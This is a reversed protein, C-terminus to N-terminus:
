LTSVPFISLTQTYVRVVNQDLFSLNFSKYELLPPHDSKAIMEVWRPLIKTVSDSLWPKSLTLPLDLSM